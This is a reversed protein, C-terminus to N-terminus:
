LNERQRHPNEKWLGCVDVDSEVPSEQGQSLHTFLQHTHGRLHGTRLEQSLLNVRDIVYPHKWNAEAYVCLLFFLFIDKWSLM